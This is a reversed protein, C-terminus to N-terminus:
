TWFPDISLGQILVVEGWMKQRVVKRPTLNVNINALIIHKMHPSM